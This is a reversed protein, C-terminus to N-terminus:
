LSQFWQFTRIMGTELGWIPEWELMDKVKSIDAYNRIVEGKRSSEYILNMNKEFYIESFHNMMEIIDIISTEKNTAMQFVEGSLDSQASIYLANVLDDVYIFDRTQNGDGYITFEKDDNMLAKIFKSVLSNKHLSYPGYVNSFRFAITEIGFTGQYASCYNEGCMKSAGYPSLPKPIMDEHLPPEKDGLAAGSSAFIFKKVGQIRCAELCNVIGEVNTKMDQRPNEISPMVGTNAALHIMVDVEFASGVMMEFNLIDFPLVTVNLPIDKHTDYLMKDVVVIEADSENNLIHKILNVGIFGAGGTILYKM